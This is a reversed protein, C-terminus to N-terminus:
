THLGPAPWWQAGLVLSFPFMWNRFNSTRGLGGGREPMQLSIERRGFITKSNTDWGRAEEQSGVERSSELRIDTSQYRHEEKDRYNKAEM